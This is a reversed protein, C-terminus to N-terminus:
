FYSRKTVNVRSLFPRILSTLRISFKTVATLGECQWIGFLRRAAYIVWLFKIYNAMYIINKSFLNRRFIIKIQLLPFHSERKARFLKARKGNLNICVNSPPSPPSPIKRNMRSYCLQSLGLLHLQGTVWWDFIAEIQRKFVYGKWNRIFKVRWMLM